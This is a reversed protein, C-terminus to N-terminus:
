QGFRKRVELGVMVPPAWNAIAVGLTQIQDTKGNAYLANTANNVFASGDWGSGMVDDWDLRLNLTAYPAQSVGNLGGPFLQLDRLADAEYYERGQTYVTASLDLHGKAPDIPVHYIGTVHVQYPPARPFPNNTLNLYCATQLHTVPDVPSSALCLPNGTNPKAAQFPDSGIWHTLKAEDYSAGFEFQWDKNPIVVGSFEVGRLVAAAINETYAVSAGASTIAVLGETIDTFNNNYFDGDLRVKVDGITFDSKFGVEYELDVEPGFTPTFQPLSTLNFNNSNIGGPVYARAITGYVMFNRTIQEAASFTFNYGSSPANTTTPVTGPVYTGTPQGSTFSLVDAVTTQGVNDWSFRYGGTLSLGHVGVKDLNVTAQTYWASETTSATVTLPRASNYGQNPNLVGEYLKYFNAGAGTTQAPAVSDSYFYGATGVVLGDLVDAHVQFEETYTLQPRGLAIELQSGISQDAGITQPLAFAGEEIIGGTGDETQSANETFSDFSFINKISLDVPGWKGFDYQANDVLWGHKEQAIPTMGDFSALQSRVHSGGQGVYAAEATLATQIHNVIGQRQAECNAVSTTLNLSLATACVAAFQASNTSNYLPINPDWTVLTESTGSQDVNLYNAVLYNRFNGAKFEFSIRYEQNNIGDLKSSTGTVTTYGDVHNGSVALRMALHDEILPINLIGTFQLRNYDGVTADVSGGFNNLDPHVPEILVAGAASTRGFLTGQPGNLVQVSGVDMFPTNASAPALIPADAIYTVVGTTLGRITYTADLSNFSSAISLSPTVTLLDAPTQINMMRLQEGNVATVTAPVEQINEAVRRATVIVDGISTAADAVQVPRTSTTTTAVQQAAATGAWATTAVAATALLLRRHANM